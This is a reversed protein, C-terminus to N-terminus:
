SQVVISLELVDHVGLRAAEASAEEDVHCSDDGKQRELHVTHLSHLTLHVQVHAGRGIMWGKHRRAELRLM